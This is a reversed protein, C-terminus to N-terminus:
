FYDIGKRKWSEVERKRNTKRSIIIEKSNQLSLCLFM